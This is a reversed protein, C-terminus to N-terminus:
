FPTTCVSLSGRVEDYLALATVRSGLAMRMDAVRLQLYPAGCHVELAEEWLRAAAACAAGDGPTADLSALLAAALDPGLDGVPLDQAIHLSRTLM